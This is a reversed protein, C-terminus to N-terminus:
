KPYKATVGRQKEVSHTKEEGRQAEALLLTNYIYIYKIHTRRISKKM